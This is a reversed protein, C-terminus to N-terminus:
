QFDAVEILVLGPSGDKMSPDDRVSITPGKRAAWSQSGLLILAAFLLMLKRAMDNRRQISKLM